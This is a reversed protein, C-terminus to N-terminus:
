ERDLWQCYVNEDSEWDVWALMARNDPLLIVHKDLLTVLRGFSTRIFQGSYQKNRQRLVTHLGGLHLRDCSTTYIESIADRVDFTPAPLAVYLRGGPFPPRKTLGIPQPFASASLKTLTKLLKDAQFIKALDQSRFEDYPNHVLLVAVAVLETIRRLQLYCIEARFTKESGSTPLKLLNIELHLKQLRAKVEAMLSAYLATIAEDSIRDM